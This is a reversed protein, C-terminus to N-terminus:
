ASQEYESSQQLRVPVLGRVSNAVYVQEARLLDERRLVQEVDKGQKLLMRRYTGALLGCQVPPTLLPEGKRPRIFINSIAGETVEGKTNTFLVDYCGLKTARQFEQSYLERRTTNHLRHPDRADVLKRSFIVKAPNQQSPDPLPTSSIEVRGDRYLLLRVRYKSDGDKSPGNARLEAAKQALLAIIEEPDCVFHFYRASDELRELHYDLLFYGQEPQWLLTEILQFDPASKTLFNGKLLCEEWEAEAVSDAVIGSGIGMRGAKKLLEVTRIPVNFCSQEPGAYGIAGCYVGRPQKELEHIIEMTRIKP